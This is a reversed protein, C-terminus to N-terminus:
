TITDVFGYVLNDKIFDCINNVNKGNPIGLPKLKSEFYRLLCKACPLNSTLINYVDSWTLDADYKCNFQALILKGYLKIDRTFPLGLYFDHERLINDRETPELNFSIKFKKKNISLGFKKLYKIFNNIIIKYNDKIIFDFCIDDMYIILKFDNKFDLQNLWQVIIEEIIFVFVIRSSSLGIPLGSEMQIYLNNYYVHKNKLILMYNNVLKKATLSDSKKTLSTLLLKELMTWNISYFAKNLDLIVKNDTNLTITEALKNIEKFNTNILGTLFIKKNPLNNKCINLLELCWLKDIIKINNHHNIYYVYNKPDFKEENKYIPVVNCKSYKKIFAQKELISGNFWTYIDYIDNERINNINPNINLNDDGEYRLFSLDQNFKVLHIKEHNFNKLIKINTNFNKKFDKYDNISFLSFLSSYKEIEIIIEKNDINESLYKNNINKLYFNYNDKCKWKNKLYYYIKFKNIDEEM